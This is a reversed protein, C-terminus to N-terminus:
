ASENEMGAYYPIIKRFQEYAVPHFDTFYKRLISALRMGGQLIQNEITIVASDVYARDLNGDKFNYVQDLFSRSQLMWGMINIKNISDIKAPSYTPYLALCKELSIGETEIIQTDWASHLNSSFNQAHVDITNGGKDIAYGTHLPQHMDGVLHFIIYMDRKIDKKRLEDMKKLDNVASYLVNLVNREETAHYVQGKDIDLYHWPKMYDFYSNSRSDDMWSAAEEISLGGLYKKVKAQVSDELFHFAVEAVLGHGKFGWAFSKAPIMYFTLALVASFLCKKM